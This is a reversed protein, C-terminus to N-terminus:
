IAFIFFLTKIDKEYNSVSFDFLRQPNKNQFLEDFVNDNLEFQLVDLANFCELLVNLTYLSL